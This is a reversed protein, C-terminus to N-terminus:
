MVLLNMNSVFINLKSGSIDINENKLIRCFNGPKEYLTMLTSRFPDIKSPTIDYSSSLLLGFSKLTVDAEHLHMTKTSQKLNNLIGAPTGDNFVAKTLNGCLKEKSLLNTTTTIKTADSLEKNATANNEMQSFYNAATQAILEAM